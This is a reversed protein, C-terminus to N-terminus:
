NKKGVVDRQLDAVISEATRNMEDPSTSKPRKYLSWIVHKSARDVLFVNGRNRSFGGMRVM